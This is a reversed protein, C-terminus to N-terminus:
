KDASGNALIMADIYSAVSFHWCKFLSFLFFSIYQQTGRCIYVIQKDQLENFV